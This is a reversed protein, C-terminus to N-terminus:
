FSVQMGAAYGLETDDANSGGFEAYATVNSTFKYAANVYYDNVSEDSTEANKTNAFGAAVTTPGGNINWTAAAGVSKGKEDVAAFNTTDSVAYTAALNVNTFAYRLELTYQSVTVTPAGKVTSATTAVDGTGYFATVDFGAMRAGINGDIWSEASTTNQEPSVLYAVGGYFTDWDGKYKIVQYGSDQGQEYFSSFGFQFDEGIGADDYITAQKGMSLTGANEWSAGIYVDGLKAMGDEGSFEVVGGVTVGNPLEYGMEFGFDADDIMIIGDKDSDKKVDNFYLVEADGFVGVTLGDAQYVTAAQATTAFLSAVALALITKKM